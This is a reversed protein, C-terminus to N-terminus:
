ADKSMGPPSQWPCDSPAGFIYPEPQLAIGFEQEVIAAVEKALELIDLGSATGHNVLVLAHQSSVAADGRRLGKLGCHEIMWAASLKASDAGVQHVPLGPYREGLAWVQDLPMQPNKFFSGANGISEPNPLKRRRLAIVAESVQVPGPRSVGMKKLEEGLGAYAIMPKFRNRLRLRCSLILFRHAERSKFRSDRYAFECDHHDIRHVAGDHWDRVLVSDLLDSLEVGYAGINQMPAAGVLGPILSLNELGSWGQQLSWTVLEHWSEGAAVDLLISGDQADVIERGKLRVLYVTGRVASAFLINSGGGLVLDARPDFRVDALKQVDDMSELQVIHSASAECGFTNFARLSVGSLEKM